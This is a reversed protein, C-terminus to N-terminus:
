NFKNKAGSLNSEVLQKKGRIKKRQKKEQKSGKRRGGLHSFTTFPPPRRAKEKPQCKPYTRV